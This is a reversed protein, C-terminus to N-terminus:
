RRTQTLVLCVNFTRYGQTTTWIWMCFRQILLYRLLCNVSIDTVGRSTNPLFNRLKTSSVVLFAGQINGRSSGIGFENSTCSSKCAKEFMFISALFMSSLSLFMKELEVMLKAVRLTTVFIHVKSLFIHLQNNLFPRQQSGPTLANYM